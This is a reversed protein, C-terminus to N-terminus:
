YPPRNDSEDTVAARGRARMGVSTVVFLAADIGNVSCARQNTSPAIVEDQQILLSANWLAGTGTQGAVQLMGGKLAKVLPVPQGAQQQDPSAASM